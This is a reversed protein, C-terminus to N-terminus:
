VNPVDVPIQVMRPNGVAVVHCCDEEYKTGATLPIRQVRRPDTGARRGIASRAILEVGSNEVLEPALSEPRSFYTRIRWSESM